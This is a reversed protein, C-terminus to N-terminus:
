HASSSEPWDAQTLAGIRHGDILVVLLTHMESRLFTLILFMHVVILKRFQSFQYPFLSLITL